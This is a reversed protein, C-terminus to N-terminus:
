LIATTTESTIIKFIANANDDWRKVNHHIKHCTLPPITRRSLKEFMDIKWLGIELLTQIKELEGFTGGLQGFNM